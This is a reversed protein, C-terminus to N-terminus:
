LSWFCVDKITRLKPNPQKTKKMLLGQFLVIVKLFIPFRKNPFTIICHGLFQFFHLFEKPQLHCPFQIRSSQVQYLFVATSERVYSPEGDKWSFSLDQCAPLWLPIRWTLVTHLVPHTTVVCTTRELIKFCLLSCVLGGASTLAAILFANLTQLLTVGRLNVLSLPSASM